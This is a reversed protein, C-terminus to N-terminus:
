CVLSRMGRIYGHCGASQFEALLRPGAEARHSLQGLLRVCVEQCQSCISKESEKYRKAFPTSSSAFLSSTALQLLCSNTMKRGNKSKFQDPKATADERPTNPDRPRRANWRSFMKPEPVLKTLLHKWFLVVVEISDNHIQPLSNFQQFVKARLGRLWLGWQQHDRYTVPNLKNTQKVRPCM